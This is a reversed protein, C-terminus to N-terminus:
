LGKLLKQCNRFHVHTIKHIDDFKGSILFQTHHSAPIQLIQCFLIQLLVIHPIPQTHNSWVLITIDILQSVEINSIILCFILILCMLGLLFCLWRTNSSGNLTANHMELLFLCEWKRCILDGFLMNFSDMHCWLMKEAVRYICLYICYIVQIWIGPSHELQHSFSFINARFRGLTQSQREGITVLQPERAQNKPLADLNWTM